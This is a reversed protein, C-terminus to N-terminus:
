PSISLLIKEHTYIVPLDNSIRRSDTATATVERLSV